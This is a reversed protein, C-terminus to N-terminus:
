HALLAASAYFFGLITHTKGSLLKSGHEWICQINPYVDCLIPILTHNLGSGTQGYTLVTASYGELCEGVRPKLLEFVDKQQASESFVHDLEFQLRFLASQPSGSGTEVSLTSNSELNM